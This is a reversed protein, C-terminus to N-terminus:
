KALYNRHVVRGDMRRAEIYLAADADRIEQKMLTGTANEESKGKEASALFTTVAEGDPAAAKIAASREGIAETISANLLKPWMKQFLGSSPYIDASNLKGNVAFVYGIVDREARAKDSLAALYADRAELLKRNELTLQLSSKSEPAAVSATTLGAALKAQTKAVEAWVESQRSHAGSNDGLRQQAINGTQLETYSPVRGLGSAPGPRATDAKPRNMALKNELLHQKSIIPLQLDQITVFTLSSFADDFDVGEIRNIIDIRNPPLGMQFVMGPTKLDEIALDFLPAGFTKLARRLREANVDSIRIWLETDGTGRVYGHFAIAYGGVILFEVKENSFASLIDTFDPSLM